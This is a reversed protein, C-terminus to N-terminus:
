SIRERDDNETGVMDADASASRSRAARGATRLTDDVTSLMSDHLLPQNWAVRQSKIKNRKDTEKEKKKKKWQRRVSICSISSPQQTRASIASRITACSWKSWGCLWCPMSAAWHKWLLGRCSGTGATQKPACCAQTPGIPCSPCKALLQAQCSPKLTPILSMLRRMTHQQLCQHLLLTVSMAATAPHLLPWMTSATWTACRWRVKRWCWLGSCCTARSGCCLAMLCMCLLLTPLFRRLSTNAGLRTNRCCSAFCRACFRMHMATCRPLFRSQQMVRILWCGTLM